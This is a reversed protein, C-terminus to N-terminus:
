TSRPTSRRTRRASCSPTATRRSRSRIRSRSLVAASCSPIARTAIRALPPIGALELTQILGAIELEFAVSLAVVPYDGVPRAGEYTFLPIRSARYSAVDDPLFAREASRSPAGNIERYITQYGLSSMAVSYPSPYVLAVREPTDKRVTGIEDELRQRAVARVDVARAM